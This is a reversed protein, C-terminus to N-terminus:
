QAARAPRSQVRPEFALIVSDYHVVIGLSLYGIKLGGKSAKLFILDLHHDARTTAAATQIPIVAFQVCVYSVCLSVYTTALYRKLCDQQM